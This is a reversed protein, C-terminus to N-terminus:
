RRDLFFSKASSVRRWLGSQWHFSWYVAPRAGWSSKFKELSAVGLSDGMNFTALRADCAMEIARALIACSPFSKSHRYDMASHWYLLSAGDVLFWSGGVLEHEVQAVIFVVSETLKMLEQFVSKPYVWPNEKRGAQGVYIQYYRELDKEDATRRATVGKRKAQRVSNRKTDSFKHFISEYDDNLELVHTYREVCSIRARRLEEALCNADFRVNWRFRVTRFDRLQELLVSVELPLNEAGDPYAYLGFPGLEISRRGLSLSYQLGCMSPRGDAGKLMLPRARTAHAVAAIFDPQSFLTRCAHSRTPQTTIAARAQAMALLKGSAPAQSHDQGM